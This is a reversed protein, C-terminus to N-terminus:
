KIATDHLLDSGRQLNHRVIICLFDLQQIEVRVNAILRNVTEAAGNGFSGTRHQPLHRFFCCFFNQPSIKSRLSQPVTKNAGMKVATIERQSIIRRYGVWLIFLELGKRQCSVFFVNQGIDPQCLLIGTMFDTYHKRRPRRRREHFGVVVAVVASLEQRLIGIRPCVIDAAINPFIFVTADRYFKQSHLIFGMSRLCPIAAAVRMLFFPFKKFLM